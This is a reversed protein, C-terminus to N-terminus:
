APLFYKIFLLSIYTGLNIKYEHICHICNINMTYVIVQVIASQLKVSPAKKIPCNFHSIINKIIM